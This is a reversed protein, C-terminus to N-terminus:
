RRGDGRDRPALAPVAVRIGGGPPQHALRRSWARRWAVLQHGGALGTRLRGDDVGARAIVAPRVTDRTCPDPRATRALAAVHGASPPRWAVHHNRGDSDHNRFTGRIGARDPGRAM